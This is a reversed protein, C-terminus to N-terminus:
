TDDRSKPSNPTAEPRLRTMHHEALEEVPIAKRPKDSQRVLDTQQELGVTPRDTYWEVRWINGKDDQYLDGKNIDETM